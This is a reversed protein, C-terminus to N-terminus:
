RVKLRRGFQNVLYELAPHDSFVTPPVGFVMAATLILEMGPVKQGYSVAHFYNKSIGLDNAIEQNSKRTLHRYRLVERTWADLFNWVGMKKPAVGKDTYGGPRINLVHFARPGVVKARQEIGEPNGKRSDLTRATPQGPASEMRPNCTFYFGTFSEPVADTRSHLRKAM